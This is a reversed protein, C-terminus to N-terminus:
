VGKWSKDWYKTPMSFPSWYDESFYKYTESKSLQKTKGNSIYIAENRNLTMDKNIKVEVYDYGGKKNPINYVKKGQLYGPRTFTITDMTKYWEDKDVINDRYTTGGTQIVTMISFLGLCAASSGELTKDLIFKVGLYAMVSLPHLNDLIKSLSNMGKSITDVTNGIGAIIDKPITGVSCCDRSTSISSGKYTDNGNNLIVNAVGSTTNLIIASNKETESFIYIMDGLQAISFKNNSISSLVNDLSNTANDFFRNAVRSLSYEELNPLFISNILRFLAINENNGNVNMGMDANLINLYTDELNIGGLITLTHDRRWVVDFEKSYKDAFSDAIWITELSALHMGYVNMVGFRNLYNPNRNLWNELTYQKMKVNVITYSQLVEFGMTNRYRESLGYSITERKELEENGNITFKTIIDEKSPPGVIYNGFYSFTVPKGTNTFRISETEHNTIEDYSKHNFEYITKGYFKAISYRLGLEDYSHTQFNVKATIKDGEMYTLTESSEIGKSAYFGFLEVNNKTRSQYDIQTYGSATSIIIGDGKLKAKNFDSKIGSGDFPILHSKYGMITSEIGDIKTKSFKYTNSGIQITFLENKPMQIIGYLGTKISYASAFVYNTTVNVYNPIITTHRYERPIAPIITIKNMNKLGNYETTMTYNGAKLNIDLSAIGKKDTTKTYTKGNVTLAVKKNPSTKGNSDLIKASFKGEDSENLTLDNTVIFSKVIITKSIRESTKSNISTITYKGPILNIPLKGVGKSDTKVTYTKGNVSFKVDVNKLLVGRNSYFTSSYPVENKFYKTLDSCQITSKVNVTSKVSKAYYKSNGAFKTLVSYNGSILNIDLYAIGSNDTTKDYSKGNITITVKSKSIAKKNKDKLTVKFKSGDKYYMNLNPATLTPKEKQATTEVGLKENEVNNTKLKEENNEINQKCLDQNPDPQEIIAITENETTAASVAGILFLFLFIFCITNIKKNMIDVKLTLQRNM